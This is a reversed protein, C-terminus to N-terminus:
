LPGNIKCLCQAQSTVVVPVQFTAHFLPSAHVHILIYIGIKSAIDTFTCINPMFFVNDTVCSAPFM